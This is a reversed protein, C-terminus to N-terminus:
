DSEYHGAAVACYGAEALLEPLQRLNAPAHDQHCLVRHVLPSVGTMISTRCPTCITTPAHAHEYLAGEAALQDMTPTSVLPNGYCGTASAKQQDTMILFIHPQRM